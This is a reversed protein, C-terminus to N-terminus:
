RHAGEEALARRDRRAAASRAAWALPLLVRRWGRARHKAYYRYISALAHAAMRRSRGTSVGVEHVVELEPTFLVSGAPTACARALDLEEVYLM